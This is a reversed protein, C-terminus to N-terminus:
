PMAGARAPSRQFVLWQAYRAARVPDGAALATRAMFRLTEPDDALDGMDREAVRMALAFRSSAMLAGIGERFYRRAAESTEAQRRALLYYESALTHRGQALAEQAYGELAQATRGPAVRNLFQTGLAMWDQRFAAAAFAGALAPPIDDRNAEQLFAALRTRLSELTEPPLEAALQHEYANLLLMRAEARQRANGGRIVPQLLQGLNAIDRQERQVRGLLITLDANGPETRHLNEIYSFTLEDLQEQDYLKEVLAKHPFIVRLLGIMLIAVLLLQWNSALQLRPTEGDVGAHRKSRDPLM